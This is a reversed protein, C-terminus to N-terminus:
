NPHIVLHRRPESGHSKAMLHHRSVIRHQLRRLSATRPSLAVAIRENLVQRITDETEKVTESVETDGSGPLVNFVNLLLRRIQSTSNKKM